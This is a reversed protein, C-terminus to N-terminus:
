QLRADAVLLAVPFDKLVDGLALSREGAIRHGCLADRWETPAGDPVVIRTDKWIERGLPRQDEKILRTLLRPAVAVSWGHDHSRAFAVVHDKYPGTVELPLYAGNQFVMPYKRKAELARHILFLKIQGNNKMTLLEAALAAPDCASRTTMSDLAKQRPAFDVTRRNDPDVLSLDWLENGQYIDPVGPAAIKLLTQSLSNLAGFHAVREAFASFDSLFRNAPSATLIAEIFAVFAGEYALDPKLWETHVKAERVAKVIYAKIRGIFETDATGGFPFAGLLTQYLFYEDNRDPAESGNLKTKKSRNFKSWSALCKKWEEPLESLVNIRAAADEGRKTDHTATTSMSDPWRDKRRRNFDHFEELSVGFKSPDGGVNNLSLLRNYVYLTTDEFGKAM